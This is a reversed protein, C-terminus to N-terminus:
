HSRHWAKERDMEEEEEPSFLNRQEVKVVNSKMWEHAKLAADANLFKGGFRTGSDMTITFNKLQKKTDNMKNISYWM